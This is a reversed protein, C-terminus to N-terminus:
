LKQHKKYILQLLVTGVARLSEASCKDPTDLTTHWYNKEPNPYDFDILDVAPIGAENLAVHDDLVDDGTTNAFQSIGLEGATSFVEDALESAWKDSRQERKILLESDGVMDLNIASTFVYGGPLHSAFYKSGACWSESKGSSGLDEGDFLVISVAISPKRLKLQQAIELLVAVGSAGDNAGLIPHSRNQPDADSDAWPRSDWHATLLL